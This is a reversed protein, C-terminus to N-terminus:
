IFNRLIFDAFHYLHHSFNDNTMGINSVHYCIILLTCIWNKELMQKKHYIVYKDKSDGENLDWLFTLPIWVTTRLLPHRLGNTHTHAQTHTHAHM